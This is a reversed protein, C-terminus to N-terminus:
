FFNNNKKFFFYSNFGEIMKQYKELLEKITPKLEYKKKLFIIIEKLSPGNLKQFEKATGKIGYDKLFEIYIDYMIELSDALTGDLDFFIWEFKNMIMQIYAKVLM